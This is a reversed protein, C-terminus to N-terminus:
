KERLLKALIDLSVTLDHEEQHDRYLQLSSKTRQVNKKQTYTVTHIKFQTFIADKVNWLLTIEFSDRKSESFNCNM